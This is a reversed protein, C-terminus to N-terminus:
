PKSESTHGGASRSRNKPKHPRYPSVTPEGDIWFRWPVAAGAGGVGTRPGSGLPAELRSGPRLRVPG